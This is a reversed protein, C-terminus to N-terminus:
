FNMGLKVEFITSTPNGPLDSITHKIGAETFAQIPNQYFYINRGAKASAGFLLLGSNFYEYDHNVFDTNVTSLLDEDDIIELKDNFGKRYGGDFSLVLDGKNFQFGKEFQANIYLLNLKQRNFEPVFYYTNESSNLKGSLTAGWNFHNKDIIKYWSYDFGYENEKHWYLTYKAATSWQYSVAELKPEVVPEHGYLRKDNFYLRLKKIKKSEPSFLFTSSVDTNFKELLVVQLPYTEGRKIDTTKKYFNVETLNKMERGNFNFQLGGGLQNSIHVRDDFEPTSSYVGMGKFHFIYFTKSTVTSVEIDEKSGLYRFNAGLKIKDFDFIVAPSIDFTTITNEPRPDKRKAGVGTTYNVDFGFSFKNNVQYAGKGEMIFYEKSYDGGISDGVIYPNDNYPEMVQVWKTNKEQQSFYNFKGYFKWKNLNVYGDTFFGTQFRADGEQFLHYYKDQIESYVAASAIRSDCGFYVLAAANKSESWPTQLLMIQKTTVSNCDKVSDVPQAAVYLPAFFVLPIFLLIINRFLKM